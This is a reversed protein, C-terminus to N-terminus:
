NDLIKSKNNTIISINIYNRPNQYSDLTNAALPRSRSAAGRSLSCRELPEALPEEERTGGRERQVVRESTRERALGEVREGDGTVEETQGGERCDSRERGGRESQHRRTHHCIAHTDPPTHRGREWGGHRLMESENCM